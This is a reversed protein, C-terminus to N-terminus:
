LYFRLDNTLSRPCLALAPSLFSPVCAQQHKKM